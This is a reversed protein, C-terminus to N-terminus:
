WKNCINQLNCIMFQYNSVHIDDITLYQFKAVSEKSSCCTSSSENNAFITPIAGVKLYRKRRMFRGSNQARIFTGSYLVIM